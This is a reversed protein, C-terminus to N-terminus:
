KHKREPQRFTLVRNLLASPTVGAQAVRLRVRLPHHRKLLARGTRNLKVQLLRGQGGKLTLGASGVIVVKRVGRAKPRASIAVLRHHVLTETVTLQLVIRCTATVPGTCVLRVGVGTGQAPQVTAKAKGPPLAPAPATTLTQDAGFFIAFDSRVVARYHITTAPPLGTLQASFATTSDAPGTAQAQATQGYATGTGYQFFASVPAGQPNVSGAVTATSAGIGGAGGTVPAEPQYADAFLGHPESGNTFMFFPTGLAGGQCASGDGSFPNAACSSSIPERVDAQATPTLPVDSEDLVFTPTAADAIHGVFARENGGGLNERWTVYPTNGSFSIAPRTSDGTGTSIPQGGNVIEFHPGAGSTVLRSVFIQRVGAHTEDWAVWPVTATGPSM